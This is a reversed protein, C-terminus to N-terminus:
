RGHYVHLAEHFVRRAGPYQRFRRRESVVLPCPQASLCADDAVTCVPVSGCVCVCVSVCLCVSVCVCVCVCLSLSLIVSFSLSHCLIVSFSLSHCLCLCVGVVCAGSFGSMDTDMDMSFLMGSKAATTISRTERLLARAEKMQTQAVHRAKSWHSGMECRRWRLLLLWCVPFPLVLVESALKEAEEYEKHAKAYQALFLLAQACELTSKGQAVGCM